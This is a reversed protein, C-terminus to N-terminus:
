SWIRFAPASTSNSVAKAERIWRLDSSDKAKIAPSKSGM